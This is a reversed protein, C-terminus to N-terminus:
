NLSLVKIGLKPKGDYVVAVFLLQRLWLEVTDPEM